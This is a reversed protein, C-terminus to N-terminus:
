CWTMEPAKSSSDPYCAGAKQGMWERTLEVFM